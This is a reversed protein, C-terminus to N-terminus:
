SAYHINSIFAKQLFQCSRTLMSSILFPSENTFHITILIRSSALTNLFGQFFLTLVEELKCPLNYSSLALKSISTQKCLGQVIKSIHTQKTTTHTYPLTKASMPKLIILLFYGDGEKLMKAAAM